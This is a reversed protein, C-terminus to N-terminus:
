SRFVKVLLVIGILLVGLLLLARAEPYYELAGIVPVRKFPGIYLIDKLWSIIVPALLILMIALIRDWRLQM